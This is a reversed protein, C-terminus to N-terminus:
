KKIRPFQDKPFYGLLKTVANGGFHEVLENSETDRVVTVPVQQYGWGTIKAFGEAGDDTTVDFTEYAIQREDLWKKVANCQVCAPKSYVIIKYPQSMISDM